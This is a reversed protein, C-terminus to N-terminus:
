TSYRRQRLIEYLCVSGAVAVNLSEQGLQPLSINTAQALLTHSVGQGEHGVSLAIPHTLNCHFIPTDSHSSTAFLPVKLCNLLTKHDIQEYICLSFHAGMAARLTKPSWAQASGKTCIVHAFGTAAATRLLTGLNGNDQVGDIVLCDSYIDCLDPSPTAILAMIPPSEGLTRLTEYLEKSVILLKSHVTQALLAVIEPYDGYNDAVVVQLPEQGSQHYAQLLHIGELITQKHKKRYRYDGLLARIHKITPNQTSTITIPTM